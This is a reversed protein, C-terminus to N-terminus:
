KGSCIGNKIFERENVCKDCKVGRFGEKCQCTGNICDTGPLTGYPNCNCPECFNGERYFNKDCEECNIGKYGTLLLQLYPLSCKSNLVGWFHILYFM